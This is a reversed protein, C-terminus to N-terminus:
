KKESQFYIQRKLRERIQEMLVIFMVKARQEEWLM